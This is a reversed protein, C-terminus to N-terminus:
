HILSFLIIGLFGTAYGVIVDILKHRGISIAAAGVIGTVILAGVVWWFLSHPPMGSRQIVMLVALLAAVASCHNSVRIRYNIVFNILSVATAGLYITWIWSNAGKYLFFLTMAGLVLFQVIYPIQRESQGHIEFSDVMGLKRMILLLIIPVLGTAGFVTLTYATAAGPAVISLISLLFIFLTAYTPVMFPSFIRYFLKMGSELRDEM